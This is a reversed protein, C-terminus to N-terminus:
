NVSAQLKKKARIQARAAKLSDLLEQTSDTPDKSYLTTYQSVSPDRKAAEQLLQQLARSEDVSTIKAGTLLNAITEGASTRPDTLKGATGLVGAAQTAGPLGTGLLQNLIRGPAGAEGVIPLKGYAGYQSGFYPDRGSVASYAAKLLPQTAGVINQEAQRGMELLNASPNPLMGISEVPLGLSAIYQQNGQEDRGIPINPKGQMWPYIPNGASGGSLNALASLALPKEALFKAQQPIAKAAFQSFPLYDRMTRNGVSSHSYDYFTDSVIKTAEDETKGKGLLSKYLGYRMRQEAGVFMSAPYDLLNKGWSKWGGKAVTKILGETDVFNNGLIGRQVASRMTPDSIFQAVKRPDGNAMKFAKDVDAFENPGIRKGFLKEVGDDVSKLWNPVLQAAARGTDGRAEANAMQQFLGGTLNRTISGFKPIIAGFVAPGKFYTNIKALANTFAGRPALGNLANLLVTAEEAPFQKAIDQAAKKLEPDAYRFSNSKLYDQASKREADTVAPPPGYEPPRVTKPPMAKGSQPGIGMAKMSDMPASAIDAPGSDVRKVQKGSFPIWWEGSTLNKNVNIGDYGLSQYAKKAEEPVYYWAEPNDNAIGRLIEKKNGPPVGFKDFAAQIEPLRAKAIDPTLPNEIFVNAKVVHPRIDSRGSAFVKDEATTFFTPIDKDFKVNPNDTGHLLTLPKGTADVAATRPALSTSAAPRGGLMQGVDAGVNSAGVVARQAPNQKAALTRILDDPIAAQGSAARDFLSQGVQARGALEAQAADRAALAKSADFELNVKPNQALYDLIDKPQWDLRERVPAPAGGLAPTQGPLNKPLGTLEDIEDAKLGSFQKPFYDQVGQNAETKYGGMLLDTTAPAENKFFIGGGPSTAAEQGSEWMTKLKGQVQPLAKLLREPSLEPDEAMLKQLRQDMTMTGSEDLVSVPRGTVPDLRLNHGAQGVALQEKPTLGSLANVTAESGTRSVLDSAAQKGLLASATEPSVQQAGAVSRVNRGITAAGERLPTQIAEPLKSVVKGIGAKVLNGAKAFQAGPIYSVPDTAVDGAFNLIDTGLNDGGLDIWDKFEPRDEKRSIDPIWDGPVFADATRGLLDVVNRGVGELNGKLLNRAMFGPLRATDLLSSLLSPDAPALPDPM